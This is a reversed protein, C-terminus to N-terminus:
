CSLFSFNLFLALIAVCCLQGTLISQNPVSDTLSSPNSGSNDSGSWM